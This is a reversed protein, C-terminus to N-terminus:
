SKCVLAETQSQNLYYLISNYTFLGLHWVKESKEKM